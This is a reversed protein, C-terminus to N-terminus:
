EASRNENRKNIFDKIFEQQSKEQTDAMKELKQVLYDTLGEAESDSLGYKDKYVKSLKKKDYKQTQGDKKEEVRSRTNKMSSEAVSQKEYIQAQRDKKEAADSQIDKLVNQGESQYQVIFDDFSEIGYVDEHILIELKDKDSFEKRNLAAAEEPYKKVLKDLIDKSKQNVKDEKIKNFDTKTKRKQKLIEKPEELIENGLADAEIIEEVTFGKNILEEVDNKDFNYIDSEKTDSPNQASIDEGSYVPNDQGLQLRIQKPSEDKEDLNNDKYLDIYNIKPDKIFGSMDALNLGRSRAYALSGFLTPMSLCALLVIAIAKKHKIYM